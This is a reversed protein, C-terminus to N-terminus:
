TSPPHQIQVPPGLVNPRLLRYIRGLTADIEASTMTLDPHAAAFSDVARKRLRTWENRALLAACPDCAAWGEVSESGPDVQFTRAPLVWGPNDANCFDCRGKYDIDHLAVPIAVHDAAQDSYGHAYGLLRDGETRADLVRACVACAMPEPITTV